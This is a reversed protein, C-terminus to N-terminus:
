RRASVTCVCSSQQLMQVVMGVPRRALIASSRVLLPEEVHGSLGLLGLSHCAQNIITRACQLGRQM